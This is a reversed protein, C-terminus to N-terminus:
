MSPVRTEGGRKSGVVEEVSLVLYKAHFATMSSKETEQERREGLFSNSGDNTEVSSTVNPERQLSREAMM